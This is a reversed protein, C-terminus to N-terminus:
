RCRLKGTIKGPACICGPRVCIKSASCDKRDCKGVFIDRIWDPVWAYYFSVLQESREMVLGYAINTFYYKVLGEEDDVFQQPLIRQALELLVGSLGTESVVVLTGKASSESRWERRTQDPM